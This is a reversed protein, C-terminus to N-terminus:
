KVTNRIRVDVDSLIEFLINNSSKLLIDDLQRQLVEIEDMLESIENSKYKLNNEKEILEEQLNIIKEELVKLSKSKEILNKRSIDLAIEETFVKERIIEMIKENMRDSYRYERGKNKRREYSYSISNRITDAIKIAYNYKNNNDVVIFKNILSKERNLCSGINEERERYINFIEQQKEYNEFKRGSEIIIGASDGNNNMIYYQYKKLLKNFVQFKRNDSSDEIRIKAIIVSFESNKLINYVEKKLICGRKINKYDSVVSIDLKNDNIIKVLSHESSNYGDCYLEDFIIGAMYLNNEFDFFVDEGIFMLYKKGM